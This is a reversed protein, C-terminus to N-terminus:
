VRALRKEYAKRSSDARCARCLKVKYGDKRIWFQLNDGKYPHGKPCHTKTKWGTGGGQAVYRERGWKSVCQKCVRKGKNTIYLNDPSLEHGSKCHTKAKCKYSVCDPTLAIHEKPTVTVLHNPNCCKRNNCKHHIQYGEPIKGVAMEYAFRHARIPKHSIKTITLMGYGSPNISGTWEWCGTSTVNLKGIFGFITKAAVKLLNHALCQFSSQDMNWTYGM